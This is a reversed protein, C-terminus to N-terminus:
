FKLKSYMTNYEKQLKTLEEISERHINIQQNKFWNQFQIVIETYESVLKLLSINEEQENLYELAKVTWRDWEMLSGKALNIGHSFGSDRHFSLTAGTIPLTRHLTYNRLDQIFKSTSSSIFFESIKNNYESEFETGQYEDQFFKRTHDILTKAAALYNHLLRTVETLFTEFGKRNEVDAIKIALDTNSEYEALISLLEETNKRFTYESLGFINIKQTIRWGETAQIKEQLKMLELGMNM